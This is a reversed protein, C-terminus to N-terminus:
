IYKIIYNSLEVIIINAKKIINKINKTYIAPNYTFNILSINYIDFKKNDLIYDKTINPNYCISTHNRWPLSPNDTINKMTINHHTTLSYWELKKDKHKKIFDITINPNKSLEYWDWDIDNNEIDAITICKKGSLIFEESEGIDYKTQDTDSENNSENNSENDSESGNESESDTDTSYNTGSEVIYHLYRSLYYHQYLIIKKKFNFDNIFSKDKIINPNNYVKTLNWPKQYNTTIINATLNPHESLENYIAYTKITQTNKINPNFQNLEIYQKLNNYLNPYMQLSVGWNYQINDDQIDISLYTSRFLKNYILSQYHWPLNIHNNIIEANITNKNQSYKSIYKWNFKFLM